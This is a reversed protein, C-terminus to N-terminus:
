LTSGAVFGHPIGICFFANEDFYFHVGSPVSNGFFGKMNYFSGWAISMRLMKDARFRINCSM